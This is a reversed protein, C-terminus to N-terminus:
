RYNMMAAAILAAGKGSGDQAFKLVCDGGLVKITRDMEERFGPYLQFVSGDVGVTCGKARPGMKELVAAVGMASLRAARTSVYNCVQAVRRCDETTAGHIGLQSSLIEATKTFSSLKTDIEEQAITSMFRTEFEFPTLLKNAKFTCSTFIEKSEYLDILARRAIEGLYMGSIQKEFLQQGKNPSREDIAKDMHTLSLHGAEHDGFGGWEMNILIEGDNSPWKDVNAALESYATNSGTGLIVGVMCKPDEYGCAALTGVTDNVLAVIEVDVGNRKLAERLLLSVNMGPVGDVSFGKTWRILTGDSLSLQNVPFSFTFGVKEKNGAGAEKLLLAIFNFLGDSAGQMVDLPITRKLETVHPNIKSGGLLDFKVVRLNSGGLDIAWFSGKEEGSPRHTVFSPIMAMAGGSNKLGYSMVSIFDKKMTVLREDTLTLSQKLESLM